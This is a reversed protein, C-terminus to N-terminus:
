SQRLDEVSVLSKGITKEFVYLLANKEQLKYRKRTTWFNEEHFKRSNWRNKYTEKKSLMCVNEHPVTNGGEFIDDVQCDSKSYTFERKHYGTCM